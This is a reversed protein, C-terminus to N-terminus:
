KKCNAENMVRAKVSERQRFTVYKFRLLSVKRTKNKNDVM